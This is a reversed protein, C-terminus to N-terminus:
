EFRGTSSSSKLQLGNLEQVRSIRVSAGTGAVTVMFHHYGAFPADQRCFLGFENWGSLPCREEEL